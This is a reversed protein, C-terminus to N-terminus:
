ETKGKVQINNETMENLAAGKFKEASNLSLKMRELQHNKEVLFSDEGM